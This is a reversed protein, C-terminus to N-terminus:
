ADVSALLKNPGAHLVGFCITGFNISFANGTRVWEGAHWTDVTYFYRFNGLAEVFYASGQALILSENFM